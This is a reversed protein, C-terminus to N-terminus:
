TTINKYGDREATVYGFKLSHERQVLRRFPAFDKAAEAEDRPAHHSRSQEQRTSQPPAITPPM